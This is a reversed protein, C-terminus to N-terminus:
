FFYFDFKKPELKQKNQNITKSISCLSITFHKHACLVINEIFWYFLPLINSLPLQFTTVKPNSVMRTLLIVIKKPSIPLFNLMFIKYIYLYYSYHNLKFKGSPTYNAMQVQTHINAQSQLSLLQIKQQKQM